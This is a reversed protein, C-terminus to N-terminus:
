KKFQKKLDKLEHILSDISKKSHFIFCLDPEIKINKYKKDIIRKKNTQQFSICNLKKEPNNKNYVKGCCILMTGNFNYFKIM